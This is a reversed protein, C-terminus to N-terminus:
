LEFTIGEVRVPVSLVIIYQVNSVIKGESLNSKNIEFTFQVQSKSLIYKTM